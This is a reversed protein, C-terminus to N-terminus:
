LRGQLQPLELPVPLGKRLVVPLLLSLAVSHLKQPRPHAVRNADFHIADVALRLVVQRLDQVLRAVKWASAVHRVCDTLSFGRDPTRFLSVRSAAGLHVSCAQVVHLSVVADRVQQVLGRAILVSVHHEM